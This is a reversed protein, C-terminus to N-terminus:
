LPEIKRSTRLNREFEASDVDYGWAGSLSRVPLREIIKVFVEGSGSDLGRELELHFNDIVKAKITTM